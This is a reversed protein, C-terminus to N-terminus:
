PNYAANLYYVLHDTWAGDEFIFGKRVCECSMGVSEALRISAINDTNIHAEVRHFLLQQFALKLAAGVAEKGYGMRWYHNHISYGMRAWHFNDRLLTSFDIVGVHVGDEKRFVGFVYTTDDRALQQHRAVLERFWEDTCISMDVKGQDYKHQSPMRSQYQSLWNHYDEHQYPRIVLRETEAYQDFANM